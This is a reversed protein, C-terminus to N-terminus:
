MSRDSRPINLTVTTGSGAKSEIEVSGGLDSLIQHVIFLGLGTGKGTPKTTFFPEYIRTMVEAPIGGGTDRVEVVIREHDLRSIVTLSRSGGAMAQIANLCVNMIIQVIQAEDGRFLPLDQGLNFGVEVGAKGIDHGLVAVVDEIVRNVDVLARKHQAPRAIKLLRHTITRGRDVETGIRRLLDDLERTAEDSVRSDNPLRRRLGEVLTAIAGLPNNIEHSLGSALLGLSALHESHALIAEMQRRESIDRRVEVVNTVIGSDFSMPSAHIEVIGTKGDPRRHSVIAKEVRGTSFAKLVPCEGTAGAGCPWDSSSLDGCVHGTLASSSQRFRSRFADNCAVIRRNQDLVVIEDDIADLIAQLESKQNEVARISRSLHDTMRNVQWALHAFEGPEAVTTRSDLDGEVIRQSTSVVQQLPSLVMRRLLWVLVVVTLVVMVAGLLLTSGIGTFFRRDFRRMTLDMLLLGNNTTAPDHCAHCEPENEIVRMTRFTRGSVGDPVIAWNSRPNDSSQHCVTCTRDSSRDLTKGSLSQDSSVKVTGKHDLLVVREVESERAVNRIAEDFLHPEGATMSLRLGDIV